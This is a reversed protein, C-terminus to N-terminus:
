LWLCCCFSSRHQLHCTCLVVNAIDYEKECDNKVNPNWSLCGNGNTFNWNGNKANVCKSMRSESWQWCCNAHSTCYTGLFYTKTHCNWNKGTRDNRGNRIFQQCISNSSRRVYREAWLFFTKQVISFFPACDHQGYLLHCKFHWHDRVSKINEFSQLMKKYPWAQM